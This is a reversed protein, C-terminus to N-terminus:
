VASELLRRSVAQEGPRRHEHDSVLQAIVERLSLTEDVQADGRAIEVPDIDWVRGGFRYTRRAMTM